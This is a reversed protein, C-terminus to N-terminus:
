KRQTRRRGGKNRAERSHGHTYIHSVKKNSLEEGVRAVDPGEGRANFQQIDDTHGHRPVECHYTETEGRRMGQCMHAHIPMKGEKTRRELRMSVVQEMYIGRPLAGEEGESVTGKGGSEARCAGAKHVTRRCQASGVSMMGANNPLKTDNSGANFLMFGAASEADVSVSALSLPTTAREPEELEAGADSDVVEEESSAGSSGRVAAM